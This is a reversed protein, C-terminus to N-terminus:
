SRSSSRPSRTDVLKSWTPDHSVDVGKDRAAACSPRARPWVGQEHLAEVFSSRRWPASLDIRSAASMCRPRASCRRPCAALRPERDAEDHGRLRRLGRVVRADHVGPQAQLLRGRQPLGKASRTCASSGAVILRKLYLETAIRLLADPRARQPPRSRARSPAATGRQLGADRSSSATRTSRVVSRPSSGRAYCSSAAPRRTMLLDPLAQPLAARRRSGTFRTRSPSRIRSLVELEDVALSPQGPPVARALAVGRHRRPARRGGRHPRRPLSSFAAAETSSTRPLDAQWDRRGDRAGRPPAKLHKRAPSRRAAEEASRGCGRGSRSIAEGDRRDPALRSQDRPDQVEPAGRLRSRSVEGKKKGHDGEWRRSRKSLKHELRTRGGRLWSITSSTENADMDQAQRALRGLRRGERDGEQQDRTAALLREELQAIRHELM